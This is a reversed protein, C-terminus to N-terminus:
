YTEPNFGELSGYREIWKYKEWEDMTLFIRATVYLPMKAAGQPFVQSFKEEGLCERLFGKAEEIYSGPFYAGGTVKQAQDDMLWSGAPLKRM